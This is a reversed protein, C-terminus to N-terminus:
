LTTLDTLNLVGKGFMDQDDVGIRPCATNVWMDIFPFNELQNFSVNNDLFYYFKKDPFKEELKKSAKFQQQGPKITVIIGINQSSLFRVISGKKKQLKKSIDESTLINMKNELPNNCVVDKKEEDQGYVLALPHFRGDGIYLFCDFKESLKLSGFFMDCGLIQFPVHARDPTSTIYKVGLGELQSIVRDLKNVFQVSAYLAVIKINNNKLFDIVDSCLKVPGSYQADLFLTKM